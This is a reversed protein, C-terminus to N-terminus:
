VTATFSRLIHTFMNRLIYNFKTKINHYEKTFQSVTRTQNTKAAAKISGHFLHLLIFSFM